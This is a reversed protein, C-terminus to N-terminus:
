KKQMILKVNGRSPGSGEEEEEEVIDENGVDPHEEMYKKVITKPFQAKLLVKEASLGNEGAIFAYLAMNSQRIKNGITKKQDKKVKKWDNREYAWVEDKTLDNAEYSAAEPSFHGYDFWRKAALDNFENKIDRWKDTSIGRANAKKKRKTVGENQEIEHTTKRGQNIADGFLNAAKGFDTAAKGVSGILASAANTKGALMAVKDATSESIEHEPEPAKKKEPEKKKVEPEEKMMEAKRKAAAAEELEKKAQAIMAEHEAQKKREKEQAALEKEYMKIAQDRRREEAIREREAKLAERERILEEKSKQAASKREEEEAERVHDEIDRLNEEVYSTADHTQPTQYTKDRIKPGYGSLYKERSYLRKAQANAYM